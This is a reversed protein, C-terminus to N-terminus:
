VVINVGSQNIYGQMPLAIQEISNRGGNPTRGSFQEGQRRENGAHAFANGNQGQQKLDFTVANEKLNFGAQQLTRELYQSDKQLLALTEPNEVSMHARVGGDHDFRLKVDMRGLDAPTLQLTMSEIKNSMARQVQIAVTQATQSPAEKMYNAFSVINNQAENPGRLAAALTQTNFLNSQQQQGGGTLDDAGKNTVTNLAAQSVTTEATQKQVTQPQQQPAVARPAAAEEQKQPTLATKAAPQPKEQPLMRHPLIIEPADEEPLPTATAVVPLKEPTRLKEALATLYQQTEAPDTVGQKKLLDVIATKIEEFDATQPQQPLQALLASIKEQLAQLLAPDIQIEPAKEDTSLTDALQTLLAGTKADEVQPMLAAALDATLSPQISQQQQLIETLKAALQDQPLGQWEPPLLASIKELGAGDQAQLAAIIQSMFDALGGQAGPTAAQQLTPMGNPLPAIMNLISTM